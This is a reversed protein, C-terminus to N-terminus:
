SAEKTEKYHNHLIVLPQKNMGIDEVYKARKWHQQLQIIDCQHNHETKCSMTALSLLMNSLYEDIKIRISCNHKLTSFRSHGLLQDLLM